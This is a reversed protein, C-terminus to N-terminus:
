LSYFTSAYLNDVKQLPLHHPETSEKLIFTNNESPMQKVSDYKNGPLLISLASDM